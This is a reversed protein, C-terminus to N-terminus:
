KISICCIYTAKLILVSTIRGYPCVGFVVEYVVFYVVLKLNIEGLEAKTFYYSWVITVSCINAIFYVM